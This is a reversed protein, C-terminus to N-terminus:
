IVLQRPKKPKISAIGGHAATFLPLGFQELRAVTDPQSTGQPAVPTSPPAMPNVRSLVSSQVPMTRGLRAAANKREQLNSSEKQLRDQEDKRLEEEGRKLVPTIVAPRQLMKGPVNITEITGQIFSRALSQMQDKTTQALKVAKVPDLAAGIVIDKIAVGTVSKGVKVLTTAGWGSAVLANIFGVKDALQLGMIRGLTSWAAQSFAGEPNVKGALSRGGRTFNATEFAVKAMENLGKLLQGNDPFVEQLLMRIKPDALLERFRAPDFATASIDGVQRALAENGGLGEM